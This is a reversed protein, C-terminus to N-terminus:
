SFTRTETDFTYITGASDVLELSTGNVDKITLSGAKNPAPLFFQGKADSVLVGGGETDSAGAAVELAGSGQVGASWYNTATFGTPNEDAEHIGAAPAYGVSDSPQPSSPDNPAEGGIEAFQKEYWANLDDVAEVTNPGEALKARYDKNLAAIQEDVSPASSASASLSAAAFAAGGALVTALVAAMLASGTRGARRSQQTM